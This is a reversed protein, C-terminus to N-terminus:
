VVRWFSNTGLDVKAELDQITAHIKGQVQAKRMTEERGEKNRREVLRKAMEKQLPTPEVEKAPKNAGREPTASVGEAAKRKKEEARRAMEKQLPTMEQAPEKAKEKSQANMKRVFQQKQEAEDTEKRQKAAEEDQQKQKREAVEAATKVAANAEALASFLVDGKAQGGAFQRAAEETALFGEIAHPDHGAYKGGPQFDCIEEHACCQLYFLM